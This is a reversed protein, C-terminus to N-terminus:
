EATEPTPTITVSPTVEFEGEEYDSFGQYGEWAHLDNTQLLLDMDHQTMYLVGIIESSESLQGETPGAVFAYVVMPVEPYILNMIAQDDTFEVGRLYEPEGWREVLQSMTILPATRLFVVSVTEGDESSFMQCCPEGEAGEQWLAQRVGSDPVDEVQVNAFVGSDEIMTIADRWNTEGPVIGHWCPPACVTDNNGAAAEPTAEPDDSGAEATAEPDTSAEATSEAEADAGTPVDILSTDHLLKDSRLEPAPLCASALLVLAALGPLLLRVRM